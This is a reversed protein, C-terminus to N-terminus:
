LKYVEGGQLIFNQFVGPLHMYVIGPLDFPVHRHLIKPARSLLLVLNEELLAPKHVFKVM